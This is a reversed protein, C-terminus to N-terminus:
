TVPHQAALYKLSFLARFRKALPADEATLTTRLAAVTPDISTATSEEPQVASPAM